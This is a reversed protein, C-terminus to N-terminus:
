SIRTSTSIISLIDSSGLSLLLLKEKLLKEKLVNKTFYNADPNQLLHNSLEEIRRAQSLTSTAVKISRIFARTRQELHEHSIVRPTSELQENTPPLKRASSTLGTIRNSVASLAGLGAGLVNVAADAASSVVAQAQQKTTPKLASPSPIENKEIPKPEPFLISALSSNTSQYCHSCYILCAKITSSKNILHKSSILM